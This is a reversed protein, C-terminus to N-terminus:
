FFRQNTWTGPKDLCCSAESCDHETVCASMFLYSAASWWSSLLISPFTVFLLLTIKCCKLFQFHEVILHIHCAHKPLPCTFCIYLSLVTFDSFRVVVVPFCLFSIQLYITNFRDLFVYLLYRQRPYLNFFQLHYCTCQLINWVILCTLPVCLILFCFHRPIHFFWCFILM